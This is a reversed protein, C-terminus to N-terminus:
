SCFILDKKSSCRCVSSSILTTRSPLPVGGGWALDDEAYGQAAVAHKEIQLFKNELQSLQADGPNPCADDLMICPVKIHAIQILSPNPYVASLPVHNHQGLADVVAECQVAAVVDLHESGRSRWHM